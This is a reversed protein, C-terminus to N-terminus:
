AIIGGAFEWKWALGLGILIVGILSLQIISDTSMPKADASETQFFTDGIFMFLFFVIFLISLVRLAWRFIKIFKKM